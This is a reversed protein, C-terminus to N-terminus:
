AAFRKSSNMIKIPVNVSLRSLYHAHSTVFYAAIFTNNILVVLPTKFFPGVQNDALLTVSWLNVFKAMLLCLLKHWVFRSNSQGSHPITKFVSLATCDNCCPACSPAKATLPSAIGSSSTFKYLHIATRFMPRTVSPIVSHAAPPQGDKLVLTVDIFVVAACGQWYLYCMFKEHMNMM